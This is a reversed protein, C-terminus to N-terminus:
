GIKDLVRHYYSRWDSSKCAVRSVVVDSAQLLEFRSRIKSELTDPYFYTIQNHIPVRRTYKRRARYTLLWWLHMEVFDLSLGVIHVNQTFFFDIWSDFGVARKKLRKELSEFPRKYSQETGTVVYNRMRQLYGSYHEYGLAISQPARREGHIHWVRTRGVRNFRFLSYVIEKVIGSNPPIDKDKLGTAMELTYDYNTTLINKLGLGMIRRHIENPQFKEILTAVREKIESEERHQDRVWHAFIEEYLLPFPKDGVRIQDAAGVYAILDQVLHSWTYPNDINNIGNGLLLVATKAM